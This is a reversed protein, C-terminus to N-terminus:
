IEDNFTLYYKNKGSQKSTYLNKDAKCVLEKLDVINFESRHAICGGISITLQKKDKFLKLANIESINKDLIRELKKKTSIDGGVIFEDGGYRLLVKPNIKMLIKSIESLCEDGKEHGYTDNIQKFNDVDIM